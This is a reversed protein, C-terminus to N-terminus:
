PRDHTLCHVISKLLISWNCREATGQQGRRCFYFAIVLAKAIVSAVITGDNWGNATLIRGCGLRGDGTPSDFMKDKGAGTHSIYLSVNVHIIVVRVVHVAISDGTAANIVRGMCM